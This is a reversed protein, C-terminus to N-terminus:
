APMMGIGGIGGGSRGGQNGFSKMLNSQGSTTSAAARSAAKSGGGRKSSGSSLRKAVGANSHGSASASRRGGSNKRGGRKKGKFPFGRGSQKSAASAGDAWPLARGGKKSRGDPFHKSREDRDPLIHPDNEDIGSEEEDSSLILVPQDKSTARDNNRLTGNVSEGRTKTKSGTNNEENMTDVFDCYVKIMPILRSGWNKVSEQNIGPLNNMSELTVTRSLAMDRINSETFISKKFGKDNKLKEMATKARDVFQYIMDQHCPSLSTLIKDSSIRPGLYNGPGRMAGRDSLPEFAGDDDDEDDSTVSPARFHERDEIDSVPLARNAPRRMRPALPSTLITSSFTQTTTKTVKAAKKPSKTARQKQLAAPSSSM